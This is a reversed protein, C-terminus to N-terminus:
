SSSWARMATDVGSTERAGEGGEFPGGTGAFGTGRLGVV